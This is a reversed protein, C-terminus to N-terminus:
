VMTYRPQPPPNNPPNIGYLGHEYIYAAVRNFPESFDTKGSQLQLLINSSSVDIRPNDLFCWGHDAHRLNGPDTIDIMQDAFDRATPSTLAADTYGPRDVVAVVTQNIIDDREAWLHFNAFSDAGMVFVFQHDPFRQKLGELIYFTENHGTEAAIKAELDSLVVPADYHQVLLNAMAMRHELSAYKNPDKDPNISFMMWTEDVCLTQQIFMAMQMHAEHPPNFSGGFLAVTQTM